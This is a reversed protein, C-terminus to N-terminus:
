NSQVTTETGRSTVPDINWSYAEITKVDSLKIGAPVGINTAEFTIQYANFDNAETEKLDYDIFFQLKPDGSNSICYLQYVNFKPTPFSADIFIIADIQIRNNKTQFSEVLPPFPTKTSKHLFSIEGSLIVSNIKVLNGPPIQLVDKSSAISM